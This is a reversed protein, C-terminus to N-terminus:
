ILELGYGGASLSGSGSPVGSGSGSSPRYSTRYSSLYSGSGSGGIYIYREMIPYVPTSEAPYWGVHVPESLRIEETNPLDPASAPEESPAPMPVHRAYRDLDLVVGDIERLEGPALDLISRPKKFDRKENAM